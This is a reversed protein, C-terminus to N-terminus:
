IVRSTFCTRAENDAPVLCAQLPTGPAANIMPTDLEGDADAQTAVQVSEPRTGPASIQVRDGVRTRWLQVWVAQCQPNYHIQLGAGAPSHQEALTHSPTACLMALPNYGTCSQARCKPAAAKATGTPSHPQLGFIAAAAATGLCVLVTSIAIGPRLPRSASRTRDVPATAPPDPDPTATPQPTATVADAAGWEADALEWLALARGPPTAALQCLAEVAQRPPLTKGNLYREWSSKSFLTRTALAAM